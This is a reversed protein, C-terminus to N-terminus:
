MVIEQIDRELSSIENLMKKITEEKINLKFLKDGTKRSM